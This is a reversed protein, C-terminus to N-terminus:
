SCEGSPERDISFLVSISRFPQDELVLHASWRAFQPMASSIGEAYLQGDLGFTYHDGDEDGGVILPGTESIALSATHLADASAPSDPDIAAFWTFPSALCTAKPMGPGTRHIRGAYPGKLILFAQDDPRDGYDVRLSWNGRFKFLHGAPLEYPHTQAFARAPVSM